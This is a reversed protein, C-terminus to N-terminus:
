SGNACSLQKYASVIRPTMPILIGSIRLFRSKCRPPRLKGANRITNPTRPNRRRSPARVVLASREVMVWQLRRCLQVTILLCSASSKRRGTKSHFRVDIVQTYRFILDSCLPSSPRADSHRLTTAVIEFSGSARLDVALKQIAAMAVLAPASAITIRAVGIRKFEAANPM